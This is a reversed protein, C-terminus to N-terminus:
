TEVYLSLAILGIERHPSFLYPFLVLKGPIVWFVPDIYISFIYIYLTTVDFALSFFLLLHPCINYCSKLKLSKAFKMELQSHVSLKCIFSVSSILFTVSFHEFYILLVHLMGSFVIM